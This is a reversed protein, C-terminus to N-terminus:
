LSRFFGRQVFPVAEATGYIRRVYTAKAVSTRSKSGNGLPQARPIIFFGYRLPKFGAGNQNKYPVASATGYTCLHNKRVRNLGGGAM